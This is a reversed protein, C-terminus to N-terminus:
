LSKLFATEFVPKSRKLISSSGLAPDISSLNLTSIRREFNKIASNVISVVVRKGDAFRDKFGDGRLGIDKSNIGLLKAIETAWQYMLVKTPVIVSVISKPNKSVYDEIALMAM